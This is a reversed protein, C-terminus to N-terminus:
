HSPTYNEIENIEYILTDIKNESYKRIEKTPYGSDDYEFISTYYIFELIYTDFDDRCQQKRTIKIINNNSISLEDIKPLHLLTYISKNDDYELSDQPLGTDIPYFKRLVNGNMYYDYSLTLFHNYTSDYDIHNALQGKANYELLQYHNLNDFDQTKDVFFYYIMLKIQQSENYFLSDVRDNINLADFYKKVLITNNENWTYIIRKDMSGKAYIIEEIIGNETYTFTKYHSENISIELKYVKEEDTNKDIESNNKECSTLIFISLIITLIFTIKM